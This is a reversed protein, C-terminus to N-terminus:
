AVSETQPHSVTQYYFSILDSVSKSHNFHQSAYRAQAQQLQSRKGADFYIAVEDAIAQVDKGHLLGFGDPMMEPIGGVPLALVPTQVAFAEIISYPCNDNLATHIYLDSQEVFRWPSPQQGHFKVHGSLDLKDALQEFEARKPGQGIFWLRFNDIGRRRLEHGIRILLQQNKRDDIYGVNTIILPRAPNPVAADAARDINVTNRIVTKTIDDPLLHKSKEYAYNSVFVYNKIHSFLYTYWDSLQRKFGDSMPFRGALEVVPNDNFHCTLVVPVRKNFALSSAAGSAADQAHILDPNLYRNSRVTWYVGTFHAIEEYLARSASGFPHMVRKLVAMCRRWVFPTAFADLIRVNMGQKELDEALRNYYTVVGSPSHNVLVTVILINM